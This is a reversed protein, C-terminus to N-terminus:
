YPTLAREISWGRDLRQWIVGYKLGLEREWEAQTLTKGNFTILKSSRRNNAQVRKTAWRCNNKCYPGDNNERDLTLGKPPDGMDRYFNEFTHWEECVTIGRGGYSPYAQSNEDECRQLM